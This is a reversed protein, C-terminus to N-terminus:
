IWWAKDAIDLSFSEDIFAPINWRLHKEFAEPDEKIRKRMERATDSHDIISTLKGDVFDFEKLVKYAWPRQFGM